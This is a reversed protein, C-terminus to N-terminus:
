EWETGQKRGEKRGIKMGRKVENMREFLFFMSDKM